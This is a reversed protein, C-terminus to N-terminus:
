KFWQDLSQVSTAKKLENLAKKVREESFNHEECLFQIVGNYDVKKFEIEYDDTVEPNLFLHRIEQIEELELVKRIDPIYEILKYSRILELAKKPGIGKIGENYDTGILIGMDVLQERTIGLKKLTDDLLILEPEMRVEIGKSPYKIKGTLTINRVIRPAGFLFSDYDQSGVAWVDKKTAMYSAQAEGESPAQVVPIGMLDLFIKSSKIMTEELTATMAAYKRAEEFDKRELAELYKEYSENKIIKRRELERIKKVPPKGDFVYVLKIREKLLNINRYFLGSLHSTVNGKDDRLPRGYPDRITTLFQYITNFADIAIVKNRLDSFKIIKKYSSVLPSLNVGTKIM